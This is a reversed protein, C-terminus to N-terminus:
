LTKVPQRIKGKSTSSKLVLASSSSNQKSSSSNKGSSTPFEYTAHPGLKAVTKFKGLVLLVADLYKMLTSDYKLAVWDEWVKCLHYSNEAAYDQKIQTWVNYPTPNDFTLSFVSNHIADDINSSIHGIACNHKAQIVKSILSLQKNQCVDLLERARLFIDMKREWLMYNMGNLIPIASLGTNDMAAKRSSPEVTLLHQQQQAM